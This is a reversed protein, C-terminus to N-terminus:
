SRQTHDSRTASESAILTKAVVIPQELGLAISLHAHSLDVLFSCNHDNDLMETINRRTGLAGGHKEVGFSYTALLFKVGLEIALVTHVIRLDTSRHNSRIYGITRVPQDRQFRSCGLVNAEMADIRSCTFHQGLRFLM